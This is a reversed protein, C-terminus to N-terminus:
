DYTIYDWLNNGYQDELLRLFNSTQVFYDGNKYFTMTPVPIRLRECADPICQNVVNMVNAGKQTLQVKFMTEALEKYIKEFDTM